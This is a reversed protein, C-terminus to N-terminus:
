LYAEKKIYYGIRKGDKTFQASLTYPIKKEECYAIIYPLLLRSGSHNSHGSADFAKIARKVNAVSPGSGHRIVDYLVPFPDITDAKKRGDQELLHLLM